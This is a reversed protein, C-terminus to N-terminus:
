LEKKIEKLAKKLDQKGIMVIRTAKEPDSCCIRKLAEWLKDLDTM